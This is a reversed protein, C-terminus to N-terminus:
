RVPPHNQASGGALQELEGCARILRTPRTAVRSEDRSERWWDLQPQVALCRSLVVFM